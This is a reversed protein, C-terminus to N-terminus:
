LVYFKVRLDVIVCPRSFAKSLIHKPISKVEFWYFKMKLGYEVVYDVFVVISFKGLRVRLLVIRVFIVWM